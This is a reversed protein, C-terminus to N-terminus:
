KTREIRIGVDSIGKLVDERMGQQVTIKYDGSTPFFVNRRYIVEHTKLGGFGTGLWKGAPDALTIEFKDSVSDGNTQEITVFLWLNSYAYNIDNRISLYINQNSVTDTVPVTFVLLSDKNWSRDPISQYQEFVLNPNCAALITLIGGLLVIQFIKKM